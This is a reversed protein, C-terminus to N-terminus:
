QKIARIRVQSAAANGARCLNCNVRHFYARIRFTRTESGPRSFVRGTEIDVPGHLIGSKAFSVPKYYQRSFYFRVTNENQIRNANGVSNQCRTLKLFVSFSTSSSRTNKIIITTSSRLTARDPYFLAAIKVNLEWRIATAHLLVPLEGHARTLQVRSKM